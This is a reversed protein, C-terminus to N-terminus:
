FVFGGTLLPGHWFETRGYEWSSSGSSYSSASDEESSSNRIYNFSLRYALKVLFGSGSWWSDNRSEFRKLSMWGWELRGGFLAATKSDVSSGSQVDAYSLGLRGEGDFYMGNYVSEYSLVKEWFSYGLHLGYNKSEIKAMEMQFTSFSTERFVPQVFDYDQYFLGFALKDVTLLSLKIERFSMDFDEEMVSGSPLPYKVKASTKSNEIEVKSDYYFFIKEWSFFGKYQNYKEGGATSGLYDGGLSVRNVKGTLSFLSSVTPEFEYSVDLGSAYDPIEASAHRFTYQAGATVVWFISRKDKTSMSQMRLLTQRQEDLKDQPLQRSERAKNSDPYPTMWDMFHRHMAELESASSILCAHREAKSHDYQILVTGNTAQAGALEMGINGKKSAHILRNKEVSVVEGNEMLALKSFALGKNFVSRFYYHTEYVHGKDVFASNYQGSSAKDLQIIRPVGQRNFYSLYYGRDTPNHYFILPSNDKNVKGNIYQPNRWVVSKDYRHPQHVDRDGERNLPAIEHEFGYYFTRSGVQVAMSSRAANLLSQYRESSVKQYQGAQLYFFYNDTKVSGDSQKQRRVVKLFGEEGFQLQQELSYRPNRDNGDYETWSFLRNRLPTKNRPSILELSIANKQYNTDQPRFFSKYVAAVSGDAFVWIDGRSLSGESWGNRPDQFAHSFLHRKDKADIFHLSNGFLMYLMALDSPRVQRNSFVASAKAGPIQNLLFVEPEASRVQPVTEGSAGVDEIVSFPDDARAPPLVCVVLLSLLLIFRMLPLSFGKIVLM